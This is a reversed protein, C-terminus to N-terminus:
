LNLYQSGSTINGKLLLISIFENSHIGAEICSLKEEAFVKLPDNHQNNYVVKVILGVM